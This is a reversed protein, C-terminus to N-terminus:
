AVFPSVSDLKSVLVYAPTKVRDEYAKTAANAYSAALGYAADPGQRQRTILNLELSQVLLKGFLALLRM